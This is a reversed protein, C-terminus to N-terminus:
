PNLEPRDANTKLLKQDQMRAPIWISIFTVLVIAASIYIVRAYDDDGLVFATVMPGSALGMKSAFGGLASMQGSADFRSMLGLLYSITFAWTVGVMCNSVIWIWPVNSYLLAWITTATIVIGALLPRLYGFKSGIAIVLGAGALGLWNAIGLTTTIFDLQLSYHEGLGIIFAFLGMNAGQFLFISTLTLIIPLKLLRPSSHQTSSDLAIEDSLDTIVEYKPLFPMMLFTVVSFTILSYFLIQTGFEPVLGPIFMIGLGGLGYQVFLLVGFTRDPQSTRGILSFGLGVLMGGFFGHLFRVVIMTQPNTLQTSALDISILVTLFLTAALQWNIRKVLFVILLAGVAAGYMNASGVNGAEQNTFNLAEKLGSVITPMINVYFLGATTLFALFVRATMSNRAVKPFSNYMRKPNRNRAGPKVSTL